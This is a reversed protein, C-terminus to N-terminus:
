FQGHLLNDFTQGSIQGGGRPKTNTALKEAAEEIKTLKVRGIGKGISFKAIICEIQFANQKFSKTMNCIFM